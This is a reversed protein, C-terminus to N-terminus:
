GGSLAGGGAAAPALGAARRLLVRAAATDVAAPVSRAVVQGAPGVLVVTCRDADFALRRALSGDWDLLVARTRERPFKGPVFRRLLRPLGRLDAVAVVPVPPSPDDDAEQMARVAEVWATGTARGGRGAGVLLLPRGRYEAADAPRGFQDRLRFEVVPDGAAPQAGAAHTVAVFAAAVFGAAVFGAALAGGRVAARRTM